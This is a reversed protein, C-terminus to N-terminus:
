TVSAPDWSVELSGFVHGDGVCPRFRGKLHKYKLPLTYIDLAVFISLFTRLNLLFITLKDYFHM